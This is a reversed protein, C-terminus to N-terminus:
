VYAFTRLAKDDRLYVRSHIEHFSIFRVGFNDFYDLQVKWYRALRM